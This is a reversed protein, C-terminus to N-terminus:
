EVGAGRIFRDELVDLLREPDDLITRDFAQTEADVLSKGFLMALQDYDDFCYEQLLPLIEMQFRKAFSEPSGVPTGDELLYSHGIQKERGEFNMVEQNLERLFDELSLNRVKAGQLVRYDPMMEIFRFRRRLAADLHRLSRDATNMTALIYVNEPVAFSEKSQPLRILMGRKDRELLTILEGFVKAVNGRNLEDIMLLFKRDPYISAERCIRKFVGDELQLRLGEGASETPRYGEVFDEYSYSPHFTIRTIQKAESSTDFYQKLGPNRESLLEQLHAAEDDAIRFLTGRLGGRVAENDELWPDAMLEHYTLGNEIKSLLEIEFTPVDDGPKVGFPRTVRCLAVLRKRKGAEYGLVLDGRQVQPFNRALQGEFFRQPGEELLEWHWDQSTPNAVVFWMRPRERQGSFEREFKSFLEPNTLARRLKEDRDSLWWMAFRRAYHTKGTGPPGFLVVQKKAVLAEEITGFFPEHVVVSEGGAKNLILTALAPDVDSVTTTAWHTQPEVKQEYDTDWEVSLSHRYEPCDDGLYVYGPEVVKGVALIKSLGDSAFIRDGPRLKRLTWLENGRRTLKAKEYDPHANSFAKRFEAKSEFEQLDGIADWGLRINGDRLCEEWYEGDRRPEMRVYNETPRPDAFRYLGVTLHNNSYKDLEPHGRLLEYLRRNLKAPGAEKDNHEETGLSEHLSRLHSESLIPLLADPYLCAAYKTRLVNAGELATIQDIKEWEGAECCEVLQKFGGRVSDWAEDVSEYQPPYYWEGTSRYYILHKRASGGGIGGLDTSAFEMFYCFSNKSDETGLAYEHLSMGSWVDAGFRENFEALLNEFSEERDAYVQTDDEKLFSIFERIVSETSTAGQAMGRQWSDEIELGTEEQLLDVVGASHSKPWMTKSRDAYAREAMRRIGPLLKEWLHANEPLVYAGLCPGVSGFEVDEIQPRLSELTDADVVDGDIMVLIAPANVAAVLIRGANIHIRNNFLTVSGFEPAEKNLIRFVDSLARYAFQRSEQDEFYSAIVSRASEASERDVASTGGGRHRLERIEEYTLEAM